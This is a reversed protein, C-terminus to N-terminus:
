QALLHDGKVFSITQDVGGFLKHPECKLPLLFLLRLLYSLSLHKVHFMHDLQNERSIKERVHLLVSEGEESIKDFTVFLNWHSRTNVDFIGINKYRTFINGSNSHSM